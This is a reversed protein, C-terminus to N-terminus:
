KPPWYAIADTGADRQQKSLAQRWHPQNGTAKHGNYWVSNVGDRQTKAILWDPIEQGGLDDPNMVRLQHGGSGTAADVRSLADSSTGGGNPADTRTVAAVVKERVVGNEDLVFPIGLEDLVAAKCAAFLDAQAAAVAEVDADQPVEAQANAWGETSGYNGDSISRKFSVSIRRDTTENSVEEPTTMTGRMTDPPDPYTLTVDTM